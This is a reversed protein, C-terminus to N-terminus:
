TGYVWEADNDVRLTVSVVASSCRSVTARM